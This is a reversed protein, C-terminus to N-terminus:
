YRRRNSPQRGGSQGGRRSNGGGRQGGRQGGGAAAGRRNGGGRGGRGPRNTSRAANKLLQSFRDDLSTAPKEKKLTDRVVNVKGRGRGSPGRNNFKVAVDGRAITKNRKQIKGGGRRQNQVSQNRKRQNTAPQANNRGRVISNSRSQKPTPKKNQGPLTRALNKNADDVAKVAKQLTARAKNLRKLALAQSAAKVKGQNTTRKAPSKLKGQPAKASKFTTKAKGPQVRPRLGARQNGPKKNTLNAKKAAQRVNSGKKAQGKNNNTSRGGKGLNKKSSRDTKIIDDLAMDIKDAKSM